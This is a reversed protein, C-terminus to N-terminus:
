SAVYLRSVHATSSLLRKTDRTRGLPSVYLRAESFMDDDVCCVTVLYNLTILLTPASMLNAIVHSAGKLPRIPRILRYEGLHGLSYKANLLEPCTSKMKRGGDIALAHHLNDATM